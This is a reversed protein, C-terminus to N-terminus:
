RVLQPYKSVDELGRPVEVIGDFDSGLGVSNCRRTLYHISGMYDLASDKALLM